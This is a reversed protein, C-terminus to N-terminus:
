ALVAEPELRSRVGRVQQKSEYMAHDACEIAQALERVSGFGCVGVAVSIGVPVQTWEKAHKDLVDNLTRMRRSAEEEPLKFMLVLFEDGGWRFLMDDARILSRITRAVARIAKDGVN